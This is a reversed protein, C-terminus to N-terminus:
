DDDDFGSESTQPSLVIGYRRIFKVVIPTLAAQVGEESGFDNLELYLDVDSDGTETGRAVSGFLIARQLPLSKLAARLERLFLEPLSAEFSFLSRLPSALVHDETLHWLHARGATIRRVLGIRELQKLAKLTQPPSSAAATALERGTWPREPSLVLVRLVRLGTRTTLLDELPTHLRM